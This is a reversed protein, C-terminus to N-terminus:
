AHREQWEHPVRALSVGARARSQIAHLALILRDDLRHLAADPRAQIVTATVRGCAFAAHVVEVAKERLEHAGSSARSLEDKPLAQESSSRRQLPTREPSAAGSLSRCCPM